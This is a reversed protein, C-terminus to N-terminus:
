EILEKVEKQLNFGVFSPLIETIKTLSAHERHSVGFAENIYIDFNEGLKQAFNMDNLVEGKHFRTNELMLIQKEKLNELRNKVVDGVCDDVFVLERGLIKGIELYINKFSFKETAKEPRGLHSLLALKVGPKSLVFDITKKAAQIKYREKPIGNKVGVNFGVRMLICKQELNANKINPLEMM